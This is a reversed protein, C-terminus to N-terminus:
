YLMHYTICIIIIIVSGNKRISHMYNMLQFMIKLDTSQRGSSLNKMKEKM